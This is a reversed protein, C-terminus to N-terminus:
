RLTDWRSYIYYYALAEYLKGSKYYDDPITGFGQKWYKSLVLYQDEIMAFIVWDNKYNFMKNLSDIKAVLLKVSDVPDSSTTSGRYSIVNTQGESKTLSSFMEYDILFMAPMGMRGDESYNPNFNSAAKMYSVVLLFDVKYKECADWAADFSLNIQDDTLKKNNDVVEVYTRRLIEYYDKKFKQRRQEYTLSRLDSQKDIESKIRLIKDTEQIYTSKMDQMTLVAYAGIGVLSVLFLIVIVLFISIVRKYSKEYKDSGTIKTLMQDMVNSLGRKEMEKLIESDSEKELSSM